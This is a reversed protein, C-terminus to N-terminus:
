SATKSRHGWVQFVRPGAMLTHPDRAFDYLEDLTQQLEAPTCLDDKLVAEAINELTVCILLKIGGHLAVPHHLRVDVHNLKAARLIGPLKPGIWPDGGRKKVVKTYLEVSHSLARCQPEALHGRFDIDEVIFLGGPKLNRRVTEVVLSVPDQLHTLLFRAYIVDFQQESKWTTVDQLEFAINRMGRAHAEARAIDLKTADMDIGVVQGTEGVRQALECTVDGGGCGADLCIAGEPIGADALLAHTSPGMVESLLRLRERGEVGGRIVYHDSGM